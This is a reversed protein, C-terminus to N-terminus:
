LMEASFDPDVETVNGVPSFTLNVYAGQNDQVANICCPSLRM